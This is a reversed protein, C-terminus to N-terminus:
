SRIKLEMVDGDRVFGHGRYLTVSRPTPWLFVRDIQGARCWDLVTELLRTGAGGRASPRVYLNSVYALRELEAVPNPIKEVVHLWV